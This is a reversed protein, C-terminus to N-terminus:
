KKDVYNYDQLRNFDKVWPMKVWNEVAGNHRAIIEQNLSVLFSEPLRTTNFISKAIVWDPDKAIHVNSPLKVNTKNFFNQIKQPTDQVAVAIIQVNDKNEAAMKFLSPIEVLCPACWTAWFHIIVANNNLDNLYLTKNELLDFEINPLAQYRTQKTTKQNLVVTTVIGGVLIAIIILINIKM